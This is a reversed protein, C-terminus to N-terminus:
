NEKYVVYDFLDYLSGSQRDINATLTKTVGGYYGVSNIYSYPGSIIKSKSIKDSCNNANYNSMCESDGLAIYANYYLPRLFLTIEDSTQLSGGARSVVSKINDSTIIFSKEDGGIVSESSSSLLKSANINLMKSCQSIDSVLVDKYEKTIGSANRVTFKIEMMAKCQNKKDDNGGNFVTQEDNFKAILKINDKANAGNLKIKLSSDQAIKLFSYDGTGYDKKNVDEKDLTNNSTLEQGFVPHYTKTKADYTGLYGMRLDYIQSSLNMVINKNSISSSLLSGSSLDARVVKADSDNFTWNEKPLETDRNYRYKLFGEEIGSEAAYYAVAGNGYLSATTTELYILKAFSFAIGGVATILLMSIIIASGRKKKM